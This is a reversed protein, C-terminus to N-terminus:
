QAVFLQQLAWVDKHKVFIQYQNKTTTTARNRVNVKVHTVVNSLNDWFSAM